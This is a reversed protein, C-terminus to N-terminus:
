SQGGTLAAIVEGIIQERPPMGPMPESSPNHLSSEAIGGPARRSTKPEPNWYPFGFGSGVPLRTNQTRQRREASVSPSRFPVTLDRSERTVRMLEVAMGFTAKPNEPDPERM